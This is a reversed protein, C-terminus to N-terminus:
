WITTRWWRWTEGILHQPVAYRASGFRVMGLRDVKRVEGERLPPRLLPVPRLVGRETVLREAPVARTETHTRKNVEACWRKAEANATTLDPWPHDLEAPVLLDTRVYGALHEVVGESEPDAGECFDPKFGYCTAFRV